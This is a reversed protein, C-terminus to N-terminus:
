CQILWVKMEEIMALGSSYRPMKSDRFSVIESSLGIHAAACSIDCAVQPMAIANVPINGWDLLVWDLQGARVVFGIRQWGLSGAM